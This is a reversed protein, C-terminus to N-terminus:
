RHYPTENVWHFGRSVLRFREPPIQHLVVRVPKGDLTGTLVLVGPNPEEYALVVPPRGAEPDEKLTLRRAAEDLEAGRAEDEGSMPRVWAAVAEGARVVVLQKWRSADTALPPVAQGDREFEVVEWAGHLPRPPGFFGSTKAIYFSAAMTGLALLVFVAGKAAAVTRDLWRRRFRPRLPAPAVPRGMVFLDWLRGADPAILFLAMALLHSSFLKVPVDYCFNLMVVHALAGACVLAGLLTTRRFVLLLGGALEAAGTFATYYPSAAMFTWLLGMPSRDGLPTVLDHPSLTGFQLPVAKAAGYFIMVVALFHRVVVRLAEFLRPYGPRSWDALSWVLTVTAATAAWCFVEVYNFTTDGSGAPLVTITVGFVTRGVWVVLAKWWVGVHDHLPVAENLLLGLLGYPSLVCLLFYAFVFRFAVCRTASWRPADAASGVDGM